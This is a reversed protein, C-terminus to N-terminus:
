VAVLGLGMAAAARMGEEMRAPAGPLVTGEVAVVSLDEIGMFGLLTRLHPELHNSEPHPSGPGYDYGRSIVAYAKRGTLLGRAGEAGVAFTWGPRIILDFYHKLTYPLGFNWMPTVLLYEDAAIFQTVLRDLVQRRRALAMDSLDLTEVTGTPHVTQWADLFAGGLPRTQSAGPEHPTAIIQLLTSVSVERPSVRQRSETTSDM